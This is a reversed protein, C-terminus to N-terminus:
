RQISIKLTTQVVGYPSVSDIKVTSDSRVASYLLSGDSNSRILKANIDTVNKKYYILNQASVQLASFLAFVITILRM